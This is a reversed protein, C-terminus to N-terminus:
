FEGTHKTYDVDTTKPPTSVEGDFCNREWTRVAAKWDKMPARARGVIWGNSEYHDVFRQPDVRNGRENCYARVQDVTPRVFKKKGQKKKTEERRKEERRQDADIRVNQPCSASTKRVSSKRKAETARRKATAGNHEQYNVFQLWGDGITLWGISEMARCFGPTYVVSDLSEATMDIRGDDDAHQDAVSWAGHLAGIARVLAGCQPANQGCDTRELASALTLVKPHTWLNCRMKIWDGAM